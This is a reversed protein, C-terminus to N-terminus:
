FPGLIAQRCSRLLGRAGLYASGSRRFLRRFWFLDRLYHVDIRELREPRSRATLYGLRTSCGIQFQEAVLECVARSMAGYPYAFATVARGTRDEIRAKSDLIEARAQDFPLKDLAAHSMTHAGFRVGLRSLEEVRSWELMDLAAVAPPQGQWAAARGCYGAALFVTSRFHFEALAPFAESYFNAFGDDFTLAVAPHESDEADPRLLDEPDVVEIGREFLNRMQARFAGPALSVAAGSEDLSHYTLIARFRRM